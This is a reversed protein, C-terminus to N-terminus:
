LLTTDFNHVPPFVFLCRCRQLHKIKLTPASPNVESHEAAAESRENKGQPLVNFCCVMQFDAEGILKKNTALGRAFLNAPVQLLYFLWENSHSGDTKNNQPLQPIRVGSGRSTLCVSQVLQALSGLRKFSPEPSCLYFSKEDKWFKKGKIQM